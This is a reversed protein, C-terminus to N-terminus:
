KMILFPQTKKKLSTPPFGSCYSGPVPARGCLLTLSAPQQSSNYMACCRSVPFDLQYPRKSLVASSLGALPSLFETYSEPSALRSASETRNVETISTIKLM